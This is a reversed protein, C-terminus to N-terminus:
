VLTTYDWGNDLIVQKSERVIAILIEIVAREIEESLTDCLEVSEGEVYWLNNTELDFYLGAEDDISILISPEEPDSFLALPVAKFKYGISELRDRTQCEFEEFNDDDHSYGDEDDEHWYFLSSIMLDYLGVLSDWLSNSTFDMLVRYFMEAEHMIAATNLSADRQLTIYGTVLNIKILQDPNLPFINGEGAVESMISCSGSGDTSIIFDRLELYRLLYPFDDGIIEISSEILYHYGFLMKAYSSEFM